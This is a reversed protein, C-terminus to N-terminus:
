QSDEADATEGRLPQSPIIKSVDTRRPAALHQIMELISQQVDDDLRSARLAIEVVQPSQLTSAMQYRQLAAEDLNDEYFYSVPVSFFRALSRLALYGPNKTEGRRIKWIATTTLRHGHAATGDEVEQFTYEEGDARTITQFLRDVKEALSKPEEAM